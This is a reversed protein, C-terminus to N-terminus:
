KYHTENTFTLYCTTPTLERSGSHPDQPNSEPWWAQWCADNYESGDWQVADQSILTCNGSLQHLVDKSTSIHWQTCIKQFHGKWLEM